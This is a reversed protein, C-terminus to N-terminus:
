GVLLLEVRRNARRGSPTTSLAVPESDGKGEVTFRSPDLGYTEVLYDLVAQARRLSLRRTAEEDGSTDMHGIIRVRGTSSRVLEAAQALPRSARAALRDSVPAVFIDAELVTRRVNDGAAPGPELTAAPKDRGNPTPDPNEEAAITSLQLSAAVLKEKEALVALLQQSLSRVEEVSTSVVSQLEANERGTIDLDQKLKEAEAERTAAKEKSRALDDRALLLEGRLRDRETQLVTVMRAVAELRDHVADLSQVAEAGTPLGAIHGRQDRQRQLEALAASLEQASAEPTPGTQAGAMGPLLSTMLALAVARALQWAGGEAPCSGDDGSGQM